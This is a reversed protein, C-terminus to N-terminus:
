DFEAPRAPQGRQESIEGDFGLGEFRAAIRSGLGPESDNRVADHLIQRAEEETSRGHRIARQLLRARVKVDLNHITLRAMTVEGSVLYFLPLTEAQFEAAKVGNDSM